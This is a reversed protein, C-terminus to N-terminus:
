IFVFYVHLMSRLHRGLCWECRYRLSNAESRYVKKNLNVANQHDAATWSPYPGSTSTYDTISDLMAKPCCCLFCPFFKHSWQRLGFEDVLAPWDGRTEIVALRASMLKGGLHRLRDDVGALFISGDHRTSPHIGLAGAILSWAIVTQIIFMSCWHRCGCKCLDEKRVTALLEKKLTRMNQAWYCLASENKTYSIGDWYLAVPIVQCAPLGDAQAQQTIPHEAFMPYKEAESVYTCAAHELPDYDKLIAEHPLHIPTSVPSRISTRKENM